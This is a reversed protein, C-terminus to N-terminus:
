LSGMLFHREKGQGIVEKGKSGGEGWVGGFVSPGDKGPGGRGGKRGGVGWGQPRDGPLVGRRARRPRPRRREQRGGLGDHRGERERPDQDNLYRGRDNRRRSPCSKAARRRHGTKRPARLM